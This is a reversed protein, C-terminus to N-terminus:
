KSSDHVVLGDVKKSGPFLLFFINVVIHCLKRIATPLVSTL